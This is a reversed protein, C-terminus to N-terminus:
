DRLGETGETEAAEPWLAAVREVVARGAAELDPATYLFGGFLLVTDLPLTPPERDIPLGGGVVPMAPLLEGLPASLRALIQRGEEASLRFRGGAWPFIVADAGALRMLDGFVLGPSLGHNPHALAGALTPHAIIAVGAERSFSRLVDLGMLWPSVMVVEVGHSKALELRAELGDIPGTLNPVYRTGGGTAQNARAVAEACAVVREAYPAPEQDALGHDDKVLDFGARALAGARTGLDAATEGLSKIAAMTLPRHAAGPFLTRLGQVGRRPGQFRAITAESWVVSEVVVGDYLAINGFLWNLLQPLDGLGAVTAPYDVIARWLRKDIREISELRGVVRRELERTLAAAPIEVTQELNIARIREFGDEDGQGTLRYIVRLPSPESM